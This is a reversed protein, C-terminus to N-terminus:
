TSPTSKAEEIINEKQVKRKFHRLASEISESGQIRIEAVEYVGM